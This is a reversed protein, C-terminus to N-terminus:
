WSRRPEPCGRRLWDLFSRATRETTIGLWTKSRWWRTVLEGDVEAGEPVANAFSIVFRRKEKAGDIKMFLTEAVDQLETCIGFEDEIREILVMSSISGCHRGHIRFFERRKAPDSPVGLCGIACAVFERAIRDSSQFYRRDTLRDEEANSAARAALRRTNKIKM